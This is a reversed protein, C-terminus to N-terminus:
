HLVHMSFYRQKQSIILIPQELINFLSWENFVIRHNLPECKVNYQNLNTSFNSIEQYYKDNSTTTWLPVLIPISSIYYLTIVTLACVRGGNCIMETNQDGIFTSTICTAGFFTGM